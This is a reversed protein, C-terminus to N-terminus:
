YTRKAIGAGLDIRTFNPIIDIPKSLSFSEAADPSREICSLIVSRTVAMRTVIAAAVSTAADKMM